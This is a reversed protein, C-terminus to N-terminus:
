KTSGTASAFGGTASTSGAATSSGTGSRSGTGTRTRASGTSASAFIAADLGTLSGTSASTSDGPFSDSLGPASVVYTSAPTVSAM